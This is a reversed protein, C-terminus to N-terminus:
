GEKEVYRTLIVSILGNFSRGDEKAIKAVQEYLAPDLLLEVRRTKTKIRQAKETNHVTKIRHKDTHKVPAQKGGKLVDQAAQARARLDNFGATMEDFSKAM